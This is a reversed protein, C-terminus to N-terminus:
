HDIIGKNLYSRTYIYCSALMQRTNKGAFQTEKKESTPNYKEGLKSIFLVVPEEKM